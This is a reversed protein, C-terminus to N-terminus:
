VHFTLLVIVNCGFINYKNDNTTTLANKLKIEMYGEQLFIQFTDYHNWLFVNHLKVRFSALQTKKLLVDYILFLVNWFQNHTKLFCYMLEGANETLTNKNIKLLYFTNVRLMKILMLKYKWRNNKNATFACKIVRPIADFM